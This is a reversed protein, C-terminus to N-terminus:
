HNNKNRKRYEKLKLYIIIRDGKVFSILLIFFVPLGPPFETVNSPNTNPYLIIQEFFPEIYNIDFCLLIIVMLILSFGLIGGLIRLTKFTSILIKTM